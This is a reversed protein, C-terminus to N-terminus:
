PGDVEIRPETPDDDGRVLRDRTGPEGADALELLLDRLGGVTSSSERKEPCATSNGGRM